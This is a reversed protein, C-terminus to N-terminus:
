RYESAQRMVSSTYLGEREVYEVVPDPTLYRIPRGERVRRRIDTSSIDLALSQVPLVRGRLYGPLTPLLADLSWGPREAALFVAMRAIEEPQRWTPIEGIIDMGTLFFLEANPHADRLARVTDVTYSVGQRDVEIRSCAFGPNPAIARCVMELRHEASTIGEAAKHAPVRNPMFLVTDLRHQMRAEEAIYLHGSHIPDFTGGFIGLRKAM